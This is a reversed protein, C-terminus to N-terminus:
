NIKTENTTENESPREVKNIPKEPGRNGVSTIITLDGTLPKEGNGLDLIYYYTAAPLVKGNNTGDWQEYYGDNDYVMNGWQNFVKVNCKPYAEIGEIYWTDNKGDGNPTITNYVHLCNDKIAKVTISDTSICNNADTVTVVYSGAVINELNSVTEGTKWLYSYPITGYKATIEIAGDTKGLCSADVITNSIEIGISPEIIRYSSISSCNNQDTVTLFYNGAVLDIETSQAGGNSWSYNYPAQGGNVFATLTGNTGDKCTVDTGTLVIQPANTNNVVYTAIQQCAQADTVTVIYIGMSLNSLDNITAGNSWNYTYPVTGGNISISIAGDNNGCNADTVTGNIVMESPQTIVITTSANCNNADTATVTYTGATLSNVSAGGLGNSWLYIIPNVGGSVEVTATGNNGGFCTVNTSLTVNLSIGALENVTYNGSITCANGDTITVGYNGSYLGSIVNTSGGNNWSYFYPSVGGNVELSISGDNNGSCSVDTITESVIIQTPETIIVTEFSSCSTADTVTITYTGAILGSETDTNGGTSWVYTYPTTGGAVAVNASGDALGFCSVNTQNTTLTPGGINNIIVTEIKQCLNADTVTLYYTGASVSTISNTISSISWTYSYLPVGGTVTAIASGDTAGCNADTINISVLIESPENIVITQTATVLNADTVTVIYTGAILNNETASTGGSSWAYTFPSTGGNVSITAAGTNQGYCNVDTTSVIDITFTSPETITYNEVLTCNNADTITVTYNGATLGSEVNTNGGSTWAYNYPSIGGSVTLSISGDSCGVCTADVVTSTAVIQSPETINAIISSACNVADTVTVVYTGSTLGTETDTLGGTSWEFTYPLTGGAGSVTASGDNGSFCSVDTTNITLVPAGINNIIATANQECNNADTVTIIYSGVSLSSIANTTESTSWLYDYPTVGGTVSASVSGNSAGCTADTTTFNINITNPESISLTEEKTCNNADTVTVTYTGAILNSETALTGGNSWLYTYSSTGGTTVLTASGSAGGNCLANVTSITNSILTPETIVYSNTYTCTAADSVTVYYTGDTLGTETSGNGGSSWNYTYPATGGNPTLEITGNSGGNCSVNTISQAVSIASTQIISSSNEATCSSADTVTLSYNGASLGTLSSTVAGSNWSYTYPSTGGNVSSTIAGNAIGCSADTPTLTIVIESPESVTFTQSTNCSNADTITVTYNGTQLGTETSGNGGSIWNYTYPSTAGSVNLVISGDSSGFCTADTITSTISFDLPQTVSYTKIISCGNFDTITVIYSGEVLGTITATNGGNSWSYGYPSTGGNVTVAISGNLGGYCSVNTIVSTATIAVPQTVIVSTSAACTSADTVTVSYTGATLGSITSISQGGGWLYTYPTTGGTATVTATGNNGGNCSVATFSTTLSPGGISGISVTLTNTCSNADTVTVVYNGSNLGTIAPITEGNSWLYNYPSSGGSVSVTADGNASGCTADHHTETIIIATPETITATNTGTCLNADTVTVTYSGLGLGTETALNGGSSWAYSYSTTGGSVVATIEGDSLGNCSVDTVNMVISLAAPETIIVTETSTCSNADTITCSYTAAVLTNISATTQGGTWLYTYPTTGGSATVTATGNNGGNCSVNTSTITTNLITPQTIIKASVSTCGNADTVTVSYTGAILSSITQTTQGGNWLYTYPTTGGSATVTASGNNGGNCSVNTSSISSTLATSPQTITVTETSTCSNADTITCSYTAAVLTNISATTQGGNWLYTYASTGGSATVTASGNNGGNCSVNTGTITTSLATAPETITVTETSTCSNADTITCSYTAAVLTNISATTQGGNWLYTYPTTGGSATVTASGNNGGNCSVNTSSITTNLITPQTIIKSSVSTCGNADTVTVSYTGATLGSITPTTQGGGWLYSYTPTGGTATVTASGNNGGNCSVNASSISSTLATAPQTVTYSNVSTCTNNDTVTVSYTGATLGSITSTSQGGNWLYTYTPTGGTATVTASGNNGGNCSVNTGTITTSLATAPETITVTETSTCSNADTITCSYTAAVLTNISATTQGGNWLYEYPLTGGSATVTASANNGGNCSVNTSTITTSLATAPQTITATATATCGNNDTATVVYTGAILNPSTAGTVSAPWLYTYPSTGGTALATASGTNDGYCSVNTTASISVSIASAPQTVVASTTATCTHSDSVTVNYTGATIGSITATTAANNWLYTYPSTGSAGIATASGTGGYCSVNVVTTSVTPNEYVTIYDTKTETDTGSANTATLTVTYTGATSYVHSPNQQTSTSLDGFNWSWSTPSNTTNDTFNVTQGKCIATNDAIFNAVPLSAIPLTISESNTCGNVDTVTVTYTGNCLNSITQTTFGEQTKFTISWSVVSNGGNGTGSDEGVRLQWTGNPNQSNHFNTLPQSPRYDGALATTVGEILTAATMDFCVNNYNDNLAGNDTSLEVQTADPSILYLDLDQARDQLINVCVRSVAFNTGDLTTTNLGSVVNNFYTTTGENYASTVGNFTQTGQVTVDWVYTYPSDGTPTATANGDCAGSSTENTGSMAITPGASVYIYDTKTEINSGNSNTVTLSVSYYGPTSYSVTPNQATSTSPTGGPFSWSWSTADCFSLDTFNVTATECFSTNDATFDSLPAGSTCIIPFVALNWNGGWSSADNYAYWTGGDWREWATNQTNSDTAGSLLAVTDGVATPNPIIFGVYFPTTINISTGFDIYTSDGNAVDNAITTIPITATGIITGPAGGTGTNNWVNITINTAPNNVYVHGFHFWCANLKNYPAYNSFYEAKANDYYENNGSVYGGATTYLVHTGIVNSLEGCSCSNPDVVHIYSTKTETDSGNANSATLSVTYYGPTNYTIVPNQQTSTAPTGGTFSWSWSTATGGYSLDTFAVTNGASVTTPTGVFDAVPPLFPDYCANAFIGNMLTMSWASYDLWSSYLSYGTNDSGDSENNTIVALTDGSTADGPIEFGIFFAGSSPLIVDANFAIDSYGLTFADNVIDSLPVTKTAIQTGPNGSGDDKWVAFTVNPSTGNTAQAWYFRGGTLKNYPTFNEFKEAIAHCNYENTGSVYGGTSTYVSPTGYFQVLTDCTLVAPDIVKIYDQRTMTSDGYINDAYLSVDYLGATPYNISGADQLTSTAPTGSQFTWLWNDVQGTTLNTFTANQGELLPVPRLLTSPTNIVFNTNPPLPAVGFRWNAIKTKKGSSYYETTFWFTVDDVPDISMEAYDGWRDYSTQSATGVQIIEEAIDLVGSASANETASQAAYRISPYVTTSSVNYAISINRQGDMAISPLWRSHADPAYTGSQRISWTTGTNQLEYWRVGAHDTNDVDVTHACVINQTTGFNRYQARYMLIQPIADVQQTTGPQSINAWDTGFNSDFAPATITQTRAFTSNAPTVWDANLQYVWLQDSGGWADDNITIFQAPTGAPAWPGDCDLPEICHFGSAPRNPNDFAIMTPSAGGALMTARDFVYIDNGSTNNDAMYYGDEWIGFKGYDPMDVVDFSWRYWAGTPDDTVSVAIMQYDNSGCISFESAFWRDAKDDYLVIIDGDNCTAGTVSGFLTNFATSSVVVAGTNKDYIAYSSNVGQMFHNKGVTGNCDSPYYPSSQGAFNLIPAKPAKPNSGSNKQWVPDDGKPLATSAYPYFREKLEENREFQNVGETVSENKEFENTIVSTPKIDRLNKTVGLFTGTKISTPRVVEQSNANNAFIFLAILM